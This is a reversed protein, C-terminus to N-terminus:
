SKRLETRLERLIRLDLAKVVEDISIRMGAAALLPGYFRMSKEADLDRWNAPVMNAAMLVNTFNNPGGFLGKDTVFKVADARDDPQFDAARFLARLVRKAAVPNARYWDQTTVLLCCDLRAWPDDKVQNHIKHGKNGPNAGLAAAGTTAVLVADNKGELYLSVPNADPQVVFDVDNPGLGAQKLVIVIYAYDDTLAKSRVVITKGRLDKVSGIGPQAWIEACGPHLGGLGVLRQGDQIAAAFDSFFLTTMDIRGSSFTTPGVIEIRTFGEQQLYREAAMM